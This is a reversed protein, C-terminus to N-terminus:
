VLFGMCRAEPLTFTHFSVGEKGNLFRLARISARLGDATSSVVMLKECKLQVKPGGRCFAWLCALFARADTVDAIFIPKKNPRVGESLCTNTVQAHQTTGVPKEIMSGTKENSM